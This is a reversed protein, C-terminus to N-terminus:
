LRTPPPLSPSVSDGPIPFYAAKCINVASAGQLWAGNGTAKLFPFEYTIKGYFPILASTRSGPSRLCPIVAASGSTGPGSDPEGGVDRDM